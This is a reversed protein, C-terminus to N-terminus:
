SSGLRSLVITKIKQKRWLWCWESMLCCVGYENWIEIIDFSVNANEGANNHGRQGGTHAASPQCSHHHLPPHPPKRYHSPAMHGPSPPTLPCKTLSPPPQPPRTLTIPPSARSSPVKSCRTCSWKARWGACMYYPAPFLKNKLLAQASVQPWSGSWQTHHVWLPAPPGAGPGACFDVFWGM